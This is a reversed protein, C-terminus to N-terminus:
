VSIKFTYSNIKFKLQLAYMIELKGIQKKLSENEDQLNLHQRDKRKLDDIERFFLGYSAPIM